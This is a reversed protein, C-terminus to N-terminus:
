VEILAFQRGTAADAVMRACNYVPVGKPTQGRFTGRHAHGHFVARVNEFRDITEGLRSNGLFPYIEIPEGELTEIIPSYHLAVVARETRLMRLGTELKVSEEVCAHVFAKVPEEGFSSLMYRGFGGMAGMCGAFGIGGIEFAEGGDLVKAGADMLHKKVVEPQGSEHDHNGLLAVVPITAQRVDQALLEAEIAKGYNTLDGCLLLVDALANIERFLVGYRRAANEQVHLDGIAAIRVRKEISPIMGSKSDKASLTPM